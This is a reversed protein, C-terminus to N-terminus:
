HKTITQRHIQRMLGNFLKGISAPQTEYAHYVLCVFCLIEIFISSNNFGIIEFTVYRLSSTQHCQELPAAELQFISPNQPDAKHSSPSMQNIEIKRVGQAVKEIEDSMRAMDDKIAKSLQRYM